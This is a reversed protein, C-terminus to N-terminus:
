SSILIYCEIRMYRESGLLHSGLLYHSNDFICKWYFLIANRSITKRISKSIFTINENSNNSSNMHDKTVLFQGFYYKRIHAHICIYIIHTKEKYIIWYRFLPPQPFKISRKSGCSIWMIFDIIFAHAPWLKNLSARLLATQFIAFIYLENMFIVCRSFFDSLGNARISLFRQM